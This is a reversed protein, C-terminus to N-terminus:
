KWTAWTFKLRLCNTRPTDPSIRITFGICCTGAWSSKHVYPMEFNSWSKMSVFFHQIIERTSWYLRWLSTWHLILTWIWENVHCAKVVILIFVTVTLKCFGKETLQIWEIWDTFIEIGFPFIIFVRKTTKKWKNVLWNM